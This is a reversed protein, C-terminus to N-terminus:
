QGGVFVIVATLYLLGAGVPLFVGWDNLKWQTGDWKWGHKRVLLTLFFLFVIMAFLVSPIAILKEVTALDFQEKGEVIIAHVVEAVGDTLVAFIAVQALDFGVAFDDLEMRIADLRSSFKVLLSVFTAVFTLFGYKFWPNALLEIWKHVWNM